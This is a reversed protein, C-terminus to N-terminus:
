KNFPTTRLVLKGSSIYICLASHSHHPKGFCVHLPLQSSYESNAQSFTGESSTSSDTHMCEPPLGRAATLHPDEGNQLLASEM